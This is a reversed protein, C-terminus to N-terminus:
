LQENDMHYTLSVRNLIDRNCKLYLKKMQQLAWNNIASGRLFSLALATQTYANQM